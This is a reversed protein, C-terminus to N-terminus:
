GKRLADYAAQIVKFKKEAMSQFEEGLHALKDPHYRAALRRYAARIEMQSAGPQLELIAYPDMSSQAGAAEDAARHQSQRNADEPGHHTDSTAQGTPGHARRFFFYWVLGALLLDDLWGWGVMLDPLVDFPVLAYLLALAAFLWKM